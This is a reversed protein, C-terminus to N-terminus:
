HFTIVNKVHEYEGVSRMDPPPPKAPSPSGQARRIASPVAFPFGRQARSVITAAIASALLQM